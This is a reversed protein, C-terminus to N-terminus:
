RTPPSWRAVAEVSDFPLTNFALRAGPARELVANLIQEFLLLHEPDKRVGAGVLVVHPRVEELAAGVQELATEGRDTLCWRADYGAARLDREVARLAAELKEPSLEPWKEFDVADTALGIMLVRSPSTM